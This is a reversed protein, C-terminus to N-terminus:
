YTKILVAIIDGAATATELAIGVGTIEAGAAVAAGVKYMTIGNICVRGMEGAKVEDQLIGVVTDTAPTAEAFTDVGTIKVPAFKKGTMDATAKLSIEKGKNEYAM